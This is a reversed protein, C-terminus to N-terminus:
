GGNGTSIKRAAVGRAPRYNYINDNANVNFRSNDGGVVGLVLALQVENSLTNNVRWLYPRLPHVWRTVENILPVDGTGVLTELTNDFGCGPDIWGDPGVVPATIEYSQPSGYEHIVKDGSPTYIIRTGTVARNGDNRADYDPRVIDAIKSVLDRRAGDREQYLAHLMAFQLSGGALMWESGQLQAVWEDQTHTAGNDLRAKSWSVQYLDGHYSVPGFTFRDTAEQVTFSGPASPMTSNRQANGAPVTGAYAGLGYRKALKELAAKPMVPDTM